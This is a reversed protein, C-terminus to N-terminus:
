VCVMVVFCRRALAVVGFVGTVAVVVAAVVSAVAVVVVVVVVVAAGRCFNEFCSRMVSCLLLLSAPVSCSPTANRSMCSQLTNSKLAKEKTDNLM